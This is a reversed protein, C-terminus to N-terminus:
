APNAVHCQEHIPVQQQPIVAEVDSVDAHIMETDPRDAHGNAEAAASPTETEELYEGYDRSYDTGSISIASDDYERLKKLEETSL